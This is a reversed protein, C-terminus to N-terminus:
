SKGKSPHLHPLSIISLEALHTSLWEASRKEDTGTLGIVIAARLTNTYDHDHYIHYKIQTREAHILKDNCHLTCIICRMPMIKSM